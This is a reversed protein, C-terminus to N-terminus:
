TQYVRRELFGNVKFGQSQCTGQSRWINPPRASRMNLATQSQPAASQKTVQSSGRLSPSVVEHCTDPFGKRARFIGQKRAHELIALGLAACCVRIFWRLSARVLFSTSFCALLLRALWLGPLRSGSVVRVQSSTAQMGSLGCCSACHNHEVSVHLSCWRRAM